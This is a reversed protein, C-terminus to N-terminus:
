MTVPFIPYNALVGFATAYAVDNKISSYYESVIELLKRWNNKTLAYLAIAPYDLNLTKYC